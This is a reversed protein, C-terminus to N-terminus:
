VNTTAADTREFSFGGRETLPLHQAGTLVAPRRVHMSFGVSRFSIVGEQCELTWVWETKKPIYDANRPSTANSRTFADIELDGGSSLDCRIEHVNTFVLTAPAVRFKYFKEGAPPQLWELIYDIDFLLESREPDFALARIHVDHWSMADFDAESWLAKATPVADQMRRVLILRCNTM